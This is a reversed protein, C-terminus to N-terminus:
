YITYCRTCYRGRIKKWGPNPTYTGVPVEITRRRIKCKGGLKCEPKRIM